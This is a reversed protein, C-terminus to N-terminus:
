HKGVVVEITEITNTNIPELAKGIVCGPVFKANDIAMAVGHIDSTVLVAGKCVPGLVRCPVRGTLAVSLGDAEANMLYAPKTSIIGAVSSDHNVTSITIERTGGFVVVTGPEYVVDSSYNEALDAYKAQSAVGYVTAWWATASGLNVTANANPTIAGSVQLNGSSLNTATLTTYQGNSSAINASSFNTATLTAFQGNM